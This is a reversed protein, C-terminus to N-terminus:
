HRNGQGLWTTTSANLDLGAPLLNIHAGGATVATNVTQQQLVTNVIATALALTIAGDKTLLEIMAAIQSTMASAQERTAAAEIAAAAAVSEAHSVRMTNEHAAQAEAGQREVDGRAKALIAELVSREPQLSTIRVALIAFGCEAAIQELEIQLQRSLRGDASQLMAEAFTLPLIFQQVAQTAVMQLHAHPDSISYALVAAAEPSVAGRVELGIGMTVPVTGNANGSLTLHITKCKSSFVRQVRDIGPLRFHPGAQLVSKHKGLRKVVAVTNQQVVLVFLRFGAYVLLLVLAAICLLWSLATFITGMNVGNEIILKCSQM